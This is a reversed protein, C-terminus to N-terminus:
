GLPLFAVMVVLSAIGLAFPDVDSGFSDLPLFAAEFVLSDLVDVALFVVWFGFSDVMDLLLFAVGFVLSDLVDVVLFGFSDLMDLPLFAVAFVLSDM